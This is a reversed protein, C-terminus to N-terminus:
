NCLSIMKGPVVQILNKMELNLMAAAIQSSNLNSLQLLEDIHIPQKEGVITVINQEDETMVIFLEKQVPKPKSIQKWGLENAIDDASTMLQAKLKKILLNCGASKSDVSRGPFCFVERNYSFAIDATIMSGGRVDTEIVITADSLGAVIRNRTPFNGKELKSNSFYESLLGGQHLMERAVSAHAPPYVTDLGHALVGVTPIENKLCAKHAIIDIGYALGSVVVVNYPKLQAVLEECMKRGYETFARTGIVSVVRQSQLDANGKQFLLVPSDICAKLRHPYTPDDFCRIAINHKENYALEREVLGFSNFSKISEADAEMLLGSRKLSKLNQQFINEASGYFALLKRYKVPGIGHVLSLALRYYLEHNEM